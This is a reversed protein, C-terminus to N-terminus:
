GAALRLLWPTLWLDLGAGATLAAASCLFRLFYARDYLAGARRHGQGLTCCTLEWSSRLAQDGLMFFCPLTILCRLGLVALALTVGRSGFAATFCSVSYSFSFAMAAGLLPLLVVGFSAFGLLFALLPYRFYLLLSRFVQRWTLATDQATEAWARLYRDLEASVQAAERAAFFRGAYLGLVFFLFFLGLSLLASKERPRAKTRGNTQM